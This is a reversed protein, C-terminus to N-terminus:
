PQRTVGGVRGWAVWCWEAVPGSADEQGKAQGDAEEQGRVRNDEGVAGFGVAIIEPSDVNWAIATVGRGKTEECFFTWLLEMQPTELREIRHAHMHLQFKNSKAGDELFHRRSMM